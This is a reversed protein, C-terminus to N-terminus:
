VMRSVWWQAFALLNCHASSVLEAPYDQNPSGNPERAILARHISADVGQLYPLYDDVFVEPQLEFLLQAKPSIAGGGHRVSYVRSIPLQLSKLNKERAAHFEDALATVCVLEYGSQTLIECAADAGPLLPINSWFDADFANRFQELAKGELRQVDWRDMAWYAQPDREAPFRGFAKEWAHAYALNYDLLVGDADLAVLARSSSSRTKKM